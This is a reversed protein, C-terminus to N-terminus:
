PASDGVREATVYRPRGALDRHGQVGAWPGRQLHRILAEQQTDAHEVVLVGGARLLRAATRVVARPVELGDGGRGYLAIEPDHDRVEPDQPEMADPIYPPNSVVVDVTGDLDAFAAAADGLRLDVGPLNREAWAHALPDLEVAHVQAKPVEDRVAAAIAGSGTCLDVLVPAHGVVRRAAAIAAGAVSETEPRPVFVGPGVHLEVHRFAARGTLHQLPVRRAREAVLDAFGEPEQAGSLAAAAVEGRSCGLLHGALVEADARATPVGAEALRREADRLAQALTM